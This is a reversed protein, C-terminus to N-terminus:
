HRFILKVSLLISYLLLQGLFSSVIFKFFMIVKSSLQFVTEIEVIAYLIEPMNYSDFTNVVM